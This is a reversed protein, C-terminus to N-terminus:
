WISGIENSDLRFFIILDHFLQALPMVSDEEEMIAIEFLFGRCNWQIPVIEWMIMRLSM